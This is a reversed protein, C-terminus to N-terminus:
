DEAAQKTTAIETPIGTTVAQLTAAVGAPEGEGRASEASGQRPPPESDDSSPLLWEMRVEVEIIGSGIGLPFDIEKKSLRLTATQGAARPHPMHFTPIFWFWGMFVVGMYLKARVERNANLIVGGDPKLAQTTDNISTEESDVGNATPAQQYTNSDINERITGWNDDTLPGLSLTIEEDSGKKEEVNDGVMGLRAFSRVMKSKDWRGDAFEDALVKGDVHDAGDRRKGMLGGDGRTHREWKELTDVFEDDYRALSIWVHGNERAALEARSGATKGRRTQELLANAARILSAKVGSIAHMRLTIQTLRVKPAPRHALADSAPWFGPPSQRALLLSWYYLWRRQSPISVGLGAKKSPSSPRKMRKSTHLDLVKSLSSPVTAPSQEGLVNATNAVKSDTIGGPGLEARIPDGGPGTDDSSAEGAAEDPPMANMVQEARTTALEKSTEHHEPAPPTTLEDETLLYACAMTGSRGKGAKCHLVAVREPAGDLWARIERAVLALIALPPAHHDPFPYRSVRGDFIDAPYTNEKVPCFNFIWYNKGHRHELFKKADERRNRYLGEIGAAPFGMVIVRDTIYALDLELHLDEDKFRAKNGSVLRRVFDAM